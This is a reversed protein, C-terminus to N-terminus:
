AMKKKTHKEQPARTNPYVQPSFYRVPNWTTISNRALGPVFDEDEAQKLLRGKSGEQGVAGAHINSESHIWQLLDNHIYKKEEITNACTHMVTRRHNLKQRKIRMMTIKKSEVSWVPPETCEGVRKEDKNIIFDSFKDDSATWSTLTQWLKKKKKKEKLSWASLPLCKWDNLKVEPSYVTSKYNSFPTHKQQLNPPSLSRSSFCGTSM